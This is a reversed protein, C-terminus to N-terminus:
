LPAMQPEDSRSGTESPPPEDTPPQQRKIAAIVDKIHAGDNEAQLYAEGQREAEARMRMTAEASTDTRSRHRCYAHYAKEVNAHQPSDAGMHQRARATYFTLLVMEAPPEERDARQAFTITM